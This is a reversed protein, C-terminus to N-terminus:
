TELLGDVSAARIAALIEDAGMAKLEAVMAEGLASRSTPRARSTTRAPDDDGDVSGVIADMVM